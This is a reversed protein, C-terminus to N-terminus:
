KSKPAPSSCLTDVNAVMMKMNMMTMIIIVAPPLLASTGDFEQLESALSCEVWSACHRRITMLMRETYDVNAMDDVVSIKKNDDTNKNDNTNENDDGEITAKYYQYNNRQM